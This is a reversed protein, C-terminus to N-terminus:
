TPYLRQAPTHTPIDATQIYSQTRKASRHKHLFLPRILPHTYSARTQPCSGACDLLIRTGNITALQHQVAPATHNPAATHIIAHPKFQSLVESVRAQDAIDGSHYSLRHEHHNGVPLHRRERSFIGVRFGEELLYTVIHAGLFGSGGTVLIRQRSLSSCPQSM